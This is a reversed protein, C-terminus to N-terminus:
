YVAYSSTRLNNEVKFRVEQGTTVFIPDSTYGTSSGLPDALIRFNGSGGILSPALVFKSRSLSPVSGVRSRMGNRVVYVTMDLWNNNEVVLTTQEGGVESRAASSNVSGCGTTVVVLALASGLVANRYWM